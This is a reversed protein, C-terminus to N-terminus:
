SKTKASWLALNRFQAGEARAVMGVRGKRDKFREHTAELTLDDIKAFFRDGCVEVTVRHWTNPDLRVEIRKLEERRTEKAIGSMKQIWIATPTIMVRGQHLNPKNTDRCVFGIQPSPGLKFEGTLVYDGLDVIHECVAEHGNPRKESPGEQVAYAAGDRISWTGIGGRWGDMGPTKEKAFSEPKDFAEAAILKDTLCTQTTPPAPDAALVFKSALLLITLLSKM